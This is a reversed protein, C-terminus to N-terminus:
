VFDSHKLYFEKYADGEQYGFDVSYIINRKKMENVLNHLFETAKEVELHIEASMTLDEEASCEFLNGESIFVQRQEIWYNKNQPYLFEIMDAIQALDTEIFSAYINM